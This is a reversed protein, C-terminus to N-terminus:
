NAQRCGMHCQECSYVVLNAKLNRSQTAHANVNAGGSQLTDLTCVCVDCGSATITSLAQQKIVCCVAPAPMDFFPSLRTYIHLTHLQIEYLSSSSHMAHLKNMVSQSNLSGHRYGLLSCASSATSLWGANRALMCSCISDHQGQVLHHQSRCRQALDGPWCVARM